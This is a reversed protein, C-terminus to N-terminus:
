LLSFETVFYIKAKTYPLQPPWIDSENVTIELYLVMTHYEMEM